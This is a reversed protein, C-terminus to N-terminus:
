AHLARPHGSLLRHPSPSSLLRTLRGSSAKRHNDMHLIHLKDMMSSSMLGDSDMMSGMLRDILRGM